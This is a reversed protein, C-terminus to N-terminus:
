PKQFQSKQAKFSQALNQGLGRQSSAFPPLTQSTFSKLNSSRFMPMDLELMDIDNQIM